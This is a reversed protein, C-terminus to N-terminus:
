VEVRKAINEVIVSEIMKEFTSANRQAFDAEMEYADTLESFAWRGFSGLNNVGPIWYVEMTSAKDKADEDNGEMSRVVMKGVDAFHDSGALEIQQRPAKIM